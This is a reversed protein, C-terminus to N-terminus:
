IVFDFLLKVWNTLKIVISIFTKFSPIIPTQVNKSGLQTNKLRIEFFSEFIRKAASSFYSSELSKKNTVLNGLHM